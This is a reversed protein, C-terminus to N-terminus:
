QLIIGKLGRHGNLNSLCYNSAKLDRDGQRDNQFMENGVFTVLISIFDSLTWCPMTYTQPLLTFTKFFYTM